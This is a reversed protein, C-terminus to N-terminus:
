TVLKRARLLAITRAEADNLTPHYEPRNFATASARMENFLLTIDNAPIPKLAPPPPPKRPRLLWAATAGGVILLAIVWYAITDDPAAQACEYYTYLYHM